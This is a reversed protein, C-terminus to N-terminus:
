VLKICKKEKLVRKELERDWYVVGDQEVKKQFIGCTLM